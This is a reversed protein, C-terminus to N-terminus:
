GAAQGHRGLGPDFGHRRADVVSKAHQRIFDVDYDAHDRLLVVCDFNALSKPGPIPAHTKVWRAKEHTMGRYFKRRCERGARKSQYGQACCCTAWRQLLCAICVWNGTLVSRPRKM